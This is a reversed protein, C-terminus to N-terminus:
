YVGLVEFATLVVLISISSSYEKSIHSLIIYLNCHEPRGIGRSVLLLFCSFSTLFNYPSMFSTVLGGACDALVLELSRM